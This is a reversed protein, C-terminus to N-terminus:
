QPAHTLLQSKSPESATLRRDASQCRGARELCAHDGRSSPRSIVSGFTGGPHDLYDQEHRGGREALVELVPDWVLPKAVTGTAVALDLSTLYRCNLHGVLDSASLHVTGRVNLMILRSASSSQPLSRHRHPT